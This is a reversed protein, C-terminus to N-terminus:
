TISVKKLTLANIVVIVSSLSMLLAGVEPRLIFGIPYAIGAALPIAFINYGLAWWLNQIMKKYMAKSLLIVRYIDYPNDKILILDGSELALDTGSAVAIGVDAQNLAAADNIGDGVMIVVGGKEQEEKVYKYKDEPLVEAYFESINLSNAVKKVVSQNDGSLLVVKFGRSQLKSVVEKSDPKIKDELKAYGVLVGEEALFILTAGSENDIEINDIGSVKKDKMFKINGLVYKKDEYKGEVGKGAYNKFDSIKVPNINSNKAEKKITEAIIHSSYTELSAMLSLITEESIHEQLSVIESLKFKGDTLTGTKDFIIVNAKQMIEVKSMDRIFVGNDIARKAGISSVAPIALGLAHPCAIVLVTIALTTAFAISEGILFFWILVTAISVFVAIFTLYKSAIDAIKQSRPKTKQSQLILRKIQGVTSDEGTRLVKLTLASDLVTSGSIVEDKERKLLPKSEGSVISEDVLGYGHIVIADAPIKEGPKVIILDGDNLDKLEIDKETGDQIIHVTDPLLHEIKSLADKAAGSSKAELYHGFLLVWVLTSIEIYFETNIADSVASILSFLLGAGLAISVLTMMGYSKNKIEMRAHSFFPLAFYFIAISLLLKLIDNGFFEIGTFSIATNTSLLLPILLVTVKYFSILYKKASGHSSMGGKHKNIHEIHKKMYFIIGWPPIIQLDIAFDSLKLLLLCARKPM